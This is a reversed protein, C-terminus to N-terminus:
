DMRPPLGYRLDWKMYSIKWEQNERIYEADELAQMWFLIQKTDAYSFLNYNVWHGTAKDGDVKIQPHVVFGGETLVPRVPKGEPPKPKQGFKSIEAKGKLQMEGLSLIGNEAFCAAEGESDGFVHADVFRAHLQKIQEIDESIRIRKGMEELRQIVEKITTKAMTLAEKTLAEKM